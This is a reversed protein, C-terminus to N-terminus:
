PLMTKEHHLPSLFRPNVGSWGEEERQVSFACLIALVHCSVHASRAGFPLCICRGNRIIDSPRLSPGCVLGAYSYSRSMLCPSSHFSTLAVQLPDSLLVPSVPPSTPWPVPSTSPTISFSHFWSGLWVPGGLLSPDHHLTGVFRPGSSFAIAIWKLVGAKLVGHVPHFPM